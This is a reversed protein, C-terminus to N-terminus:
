FYSLFYLVFHNGEIYELYWRRCIGYVKETKGNTIQTKQEDYVSFYTNNIQLPRLTQNKNPSQVYVHFKAFAAGKRSATGLIKGTFDAYHFIASGGSYFTSQLYGEHEIVRVFNKNPTFICYDNYRITQSKLNNSVTLILALLIIKKM